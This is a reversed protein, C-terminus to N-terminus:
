HMGIEYSYLVSSTLKQMKPVLDKGQIQKSMLSLAEVYDEIGGCQRWAYSLMVMRYLSYKLVGLLPPVRIPQSTSAMQRSAEQPSQRSGGVIGRVKISGPKIFACPDFFHRKEGCLSCDKWIDNAPSNKALELRWARCPCQSSFTSTDKTESLDIAHVHVARVVKNRKSVRTFFGVKQGKMCIKAECIRGRCADSGHFFIEEGGDDPQIVGYEYPARYWAVVGTRKMKLRESGM